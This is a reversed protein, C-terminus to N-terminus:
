VVGQILNFNDPRKSMIKKIETFSFPTFNNNDVVVDWSKGEPPLRGHSHGYLHWSNFHSKSWVRMCYHCLIIHHGEIVVELLSAVNEFREKYVLTDKDHSGRLLIIKGNLRDLIYKFEGFGFDGLHYVTDNPKVVKNWNRILIENM